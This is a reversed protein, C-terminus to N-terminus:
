SAIWCSVAKAKEGLHLPSSPPPLCFCCASIKSQFSSVLKQFLAQSYEKTFHTEKIQQWFKRCANSINLYTPILSPDLQLISLCTQVLNGVRLSDQITYETQLSFPLIMFALLLALAALILFYFMPIADEKFKLEQEILTRM